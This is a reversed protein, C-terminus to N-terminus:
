PQFCESLAALLQEVQDENHGASLTVRLRSSGTPVTPPRIATVMFGKAYLVESLDLARQADGISIPQIPTSSDMVPLGRQRAGNRFQDIREFLNERRLPETQIMKVAESAACALAPSLATTFLYTRGENVIHDILDVSGAIFAGACGFAKGLTGILVPVDDQTLGETACSGRGKEGTVGIGHADDVVLCADADKCRSAIEALPAIDGDMSFVGDTAVVVRTEQSAELQQDLGNLDLHPYRRLKAGSLRAGDILSAHCLRDQIIVDHRSALSGLAALNAQYGSVCLLVKDRELFAALEQELLRHAESYGTVLASAGSGVGYRKAGRSTAAALSPDRALGLYDNSSFDVLLHGDHQLRMDGAPVLEKRQRQLQSQRRKHAADVLRVELSSAKDPM